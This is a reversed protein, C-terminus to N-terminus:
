AAASAHVHTGNESILPVDTSPPQLAEDPKKIPNDCNTCNAKEGSKMKFIYKDEYATM